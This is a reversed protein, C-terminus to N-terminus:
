NCESLTRKKLISKFTIYTRLKGENIVANEHLQKGWLGKSRKILISKIEDLSTNIDINLQQLIFQASTYWSEKGNIHIEKSTNFAQRLLSENHMVEIREFYKGIACVIEIFIPTRGLEGYVTLNSIRKHIGLIYKYYKMALKECDFNPYGKELKFETEKRVAAAPPLFIGWVECGYLLIAKYYSWFIFRHIFMQLSIVSFVKSSLVRMWDETTFILSQTHFHVQPPSFLVGINIHKCIKLLIEMSISIIIWFKEVKILYLIKTKDMNIDLCWLTCYIALKKLCNHLGKESESILIVDDAYMLCNIEIDGLTTGECEKDFIEALDNIFIKFLNPSLNDGQNVGIESYFGQWVM